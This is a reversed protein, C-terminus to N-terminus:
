SFCVERPEFYVVWKLHTPENYFKSLIEQPSQKSVTEVRSTERQFVWWSRKSERAVKGKQNEKEENREGSQKWQSDCLNERHNSCFRTWVMWLFLDRQKPDKATGELKPRSVFYHGRHHLKPVVRKSCDKRRRKNKPM